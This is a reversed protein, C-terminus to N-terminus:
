ARALESQQSAKYRVVQRSCGMKHHLTRWITSTSVTSGFLDLLKGRIEELYISPREQILRLIIIHEFDGLISHPGHHHDVPRVDGTQQFVRLYRRISSESVCLLRSIDAVSINESINLFVIRWRLDLSYPNPM